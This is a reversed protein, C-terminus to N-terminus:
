DNWATTDHSFEDRERTLGDHDVHVAGAPATAVRKTHHRDIARQQADRARRMREAKAPTMWNSQCGVKMWLEELTEIAEPETAAPEDTTASAAKPAHAPTTHQHLAVCSLGQTKQGQKQLAIPSSALAIPSQQLAIPSLRPSGTTPRITNVDIDLALM